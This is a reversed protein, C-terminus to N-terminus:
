FMLLQRWRITQPEQQCLRLGIIAPLEAERAGANASGRTSQAPRISFANTSVRSHKPLVRSDM